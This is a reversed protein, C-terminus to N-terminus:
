NQMLVELGFIPDHMRKDFLGSKHVQKDWAKEKNRPCIPTGKFNQETQPCIFSPDVHSTASVWAIVFNERAAFLRYMDSADLSGGARRKSPIINGLGFGARCLVEYFARKLMRPVNYKRGLIAADVADPLYKVGVPYGTFELNTAARLIQAMTKFTQGESFSLSLDMDMTLLADLDSAQTNLVNYLVFSSGKIVEISARHNGAVPQEIDM